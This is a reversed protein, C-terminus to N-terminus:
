SEMRSEYDKAHKLWGSALLAAATNMAAILPNAYLPMNLLIGAVAIGFIIIAIIRAKKKFVIYEMDDLRKTDNGMPSLALIVALSLSVSLLSITEGIICYKMFLLNSLLIIFSIIGCRTQTDAHYGGAYSRLPILVTLFIVCQRGVEMFIGLGISAMLSIAMIKARRIGYEIIEVESEDILNEELLIKLTREKHM